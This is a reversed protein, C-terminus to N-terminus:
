NDGLTFPPRDSQDGITVRVTPNIADENFIRDNPPNEKYDPATIAEATPVTQPNKNPAPLLANASFYSIVGAIAVILIILAWDSKKV